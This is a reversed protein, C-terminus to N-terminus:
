ESLLGKVRELNIKDSSVSPHYTSDIGSELDPYRRVYWRYLRGNDPTNSFLYENQEVSMARRWADLDWKRLTWVDLVSDYAKLDGTREAGFETTKTEFKSVNGRTHMVEVYLEAVSVEFSTM